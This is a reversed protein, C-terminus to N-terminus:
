PKADESRVGGIARVSPHRKEAIAADIEAELETLFRARGFRAANAIARAPDWTRRAFAEIAQLLSTVTPQDFFLGTEGSVISELAGGEGLAIVPRGASQAEVATMGFDETAPLILARCRQLHDVVADDDLRGLFEITPGACEWLSRAARGGGIVKLRVGLRTCAEVALDVRKHPVLRSVVLFWDEPESVPLCPAYRALDVPPYVVRAERGYAAWIRRAVNGSNALYRDVRAAARRDNRRLRAFLPPTLAKLAAPVRAPTLYTQDGYLFRAPSHCYCILVADDRVVVGHAWASSDAIVVDFERLARTFSRFAAPFLPLLARHYRAVGPLYQMPSSRIDWAAFRCPLASLDTVSTFVPADPFRDHLVELVREAGGYQTLYDHVLAVRV